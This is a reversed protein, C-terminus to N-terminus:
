VRDLAANSLGFKEHPWPPVHWSYEKTRWFKPSVQKVNDESWGIM